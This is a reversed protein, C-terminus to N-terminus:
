LVSILEVNYKRYKDFLDVTICQNCFANGRKEDYYVNICHPCKQKHNNKIENHIECLINNAIHSSNFCKRCFVKRQDFYIDSSGCLHNNVTKDYTELTQKVNLTMFDKMDEMQVLKKYAVVTQNDMVLNIIPQLKNIIQDYEEKDEKWVSCWEEIEAEKIGTEELNDHMIKIYKAYINILREVAQVKEIFSRHPFKIPNQMEDTNVEEDYKQKVINIRAQKQMELTIGIKIEPDISSFCNFLRMLRGSVCVIPMEELEIKFLGFFNIRDEKGFNERVYSIAYCFVKKFTADLLEIRQEINFMGTLKGMEEESFYDKCFKKCKKYKLLKKVKNRLYNFIKKSQQYIDHDHVNQTDKYVTKNVVDGNTNIRAVPVPPLHVIRHERKRNSRFHMNQEWHEGIGDLFDIFFQSFYQIPNEEYNIKKIQANMISHEPLAYLRNKAVELVCLTAPVEPINQLRNNNLKIVELNGSFHEIQQLENNSINLYRLADPLKGTIHTLKCRSLNLYTLNDALLNVPFYNIYNRKFTMFQWSDDPLYCMSHTIEDHRYFKSWIAFMRNENEQQIKQMQYMSNYTHGDLSKPPKKDEPPKNFILHYDAFDLCLDLEQNNNFQSLHCVDLFFM